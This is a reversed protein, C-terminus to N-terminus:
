ANVGDKEPGRDPSQLDPDEPTSKMLLSIAQGLTEDFHDLRQANQQATRELAGLRARADDVKNGLADMWTGITRLVVTEPNDQYLLHPAWQRLIKEALIVADTDVKEPIPINAPPRGQPRYGARRYRNIMVPSAKHHGNELKSITSADSGILKALATISLGKSDRFAKLQAGTVTM